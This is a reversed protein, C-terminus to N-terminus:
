DKKRFIDKMKELLSKGKDKKKEEKKDEEKKNSERAKEKKSRFLREFFNLDPDEESFDPCEVDSLLEEPLPYFSRRGIGYSPGSAEVKQMFRAFIPLAMHAGQGLATSRFRIGPSDAGVWAGAVLGPTFGIFWGDANNQTTGTKGALETKLGYVTRLTKGTGREVVGKLMHVMFRATREEFAAERLKAPKAEYLVKGKADVIKTLSKLEIGNGYNAFATYASVMEYLSLNATGLGISPVDPIDSEIGAVHALDAVDHPGTEITLEATVTNVSNILAGQLSYFGDHEGDSNSPSWDDYRKYTRKENSIYECPEYGEELATAYVFPKFTSGVQRRSLVHDYQFFKFNTGGVWALVQGDSPDVAFFGSHLQKLAWAVSDAPSMEVKQEKGNKIISMQVPQELKKIIEAESIGKKQMARYRKTKKLASVYIEPHGEWPKRGRWHKDFESQLNIMHSHMAENAFNQLRSDITTYLKLGDEFLSVSDGYQEELIREAQLRVHEMFYPAPGNNHDLVRYNLGLPKNKYSEGQERTLFQQDVMRDLVINRRKQSHDPHLRPNYYTNAALMGILTAAEHPQLRSSSKSFFRNAAVEIGYINEGFPVTNLYLNLIEAKTYIDELRAATFMERAKNVPLSLFKYDKRPYLNKALQQSITSGGGQARDGLLVSHVLVRGMSIYDLGKHEFFRSDETAVLANIVHESINSNEISRRNEVYFKGIMEGDSSYVESASHNRIKSLQYTDPIKGFLGIYVLSLFIALFAVGAIFLKLLSKLLWNRFRVGGSKRPNKSTKGPKTKHKM